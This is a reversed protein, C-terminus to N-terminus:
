TIGVSAGGVPLRVTFCTGVNPTSTVEIHGAHKDVVISRAIALGQGSGRGVEKTTFFPDYIKAIIEKPIGCGNDEFQLEVWDDVLQTRICIRGSESDRGADALAHAANVILNLFVQSLEGVNCLVEPIEGCQLDVTAVYKYENRSIMLTTKLARNIDSMTKETADPHAFDKMARVIAAVRATGEMIRAIARPVEEVVFGLDTSMSPAPTSEKIKGNLAALLNGFASELFHVSDSVYQIPTNIEHAIGAALRGVAELKQALGLELEAAERLRMQERLQENTSELAAEAQVRATVDMTIGATRNAVWEMSGCSEIHRISGDPRVVRYQIAPSSRPPRTSSAGISARVRERDEPDILALWSELTPRFESRNRGVIQYMVDNWWVNQENAEREYVGVHAASTAFDFRKTLLDLALQQEHRQTIDATRAMFGEVAGKAEILPEIKMGIWFKRGDKAYNILEAAVSRGAALAAGIRAREAADTDLGQLLQAPTRGVAEAMGYGTIRTFGENIWVIVGQRDTLIIGSAGAEASRALQALHRRKSLRSWFSRVIMLFRLTPFRVARIETM